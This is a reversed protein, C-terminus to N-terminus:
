LHAEAKKEPAPPSSRISSRDLFFYFLCVSLLLGPLTCARCTSYEVVRSHLLLFDSATKNCTRFESQQPSIKVQNPFSWAACAAGTIHSSGLIHINKHMRRISNQFRFEATKKAELQEGEVVRIGSCTRTAYSTFM